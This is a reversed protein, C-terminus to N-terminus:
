FQLNRSAVKVQSENKPSIESVFGKLQGSAIGRMILDSKLYTAYQKPREPPFVVNKIGVKLIIPVCENCPMKSVFMTTSSHNIDQVFRSLITSQEAHIIFPYKKEKVNEDRDNARPFDGYMSKSPFGNWGVAVIENEKLVVAGVGRVPDDSRQSLIQAMRSMHRAIQQWQLDNTISIANNKHAETDKIGSSLGNPLGFPKFRTSEPIDVVTVKALWEFLVTMQSSVKCCVKIFDPWFLVKPLMNIWDKNWHKNLLVQTFDMHNEKSPTYPSRRVSSDRVVSDSIMPVYVSHAILCSRYMQESQNLDELSPLEPELPLYYVRTIGMQIMFKTCRSCPKRSVYVVCGKVKETHVVLASAVAHLGERSCDIAVIHENSDVIVVGVTNIKCDESQKEILLNANVENSDEVSTSVCDHGPEQSMVSNERLGQSEMGEPVNDSSAVDNTVLVKIKNNDQNADEDNKRKHGPTTNIYSHDVIESEKSSKALPSEEMWLALCVFLDKKSIRHVIKQYSSDEEAM